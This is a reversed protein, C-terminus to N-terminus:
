PSRRICRQWRRQAAPPTGKTPPLDAIVVAIRPDRELLTQLDARLLSIIAVVAATREALFAVGQAQRTPDVDTLLRLALLFLPDDADQEALTEALVNTCGSAAADMALARLDGLVTRRFADPLRHWITAVVPLPTQVLTNRAAIFDNTHMAYGLRRALLPNSAALVRMDVAGPLAAAIVDDTCSEILDLFLGGHEQMAIALEDCAAQRQMPRRKATMANLAHLAPLAASPPLAVLADLTQCFADRRDPHALANALVDTNPRLVALINNPLTALLATTEESSWGAFTAALAQCCAAVSDTRSRSAVRLVTMAAVFAHPTPHATIWDRLALPMDRHRGVIQVFAIPDPPPPLAAILAPFTDIPLDRIVVPLLAWRVADYDLTHAHIAAILADNLDAPILFSPDIGLSRVALHKMWAGGAWKNRWARKMNLSLSAWVEPTAAAFFARATEPTIAPPAARDGRAFAIAACVENHDAASLIFTQVDAHLADWPAAEVVHIANRPNTRLLHVITTWAEDMCSAVALRTLAALDDWTARQILSSLISAHCARAVPSAATYADLADIVQDWILVDVSAGAHTMPLWPLCVAADPTHHLADLLRNREALTLEDMWATPANPTAQGWRRVACAIDDSWTLLVASNDSPGILAAAAWHSCRDHQVADILTAAHSAGWGVPAVTAWTPLIREGTDTGILSAIAAHLAPSDTMGPPLLSPLGCALAGLASIVPDVGPALALVCAFWPDGLAPAVIPVDSEGHLAHLTATLAPSPPYM